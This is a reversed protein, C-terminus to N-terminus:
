KGRREEIKREEGKEREREEAGRNEEGRRRAGRNEERRTEEIKREEAGREVKKKKDGRLSEMGQRNQFCPARVFGTFGLLQSILLLSMKIIPWLFLSTAALVNM